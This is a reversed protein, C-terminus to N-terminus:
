MNIGNKPQPPLGYMDVARDSIKNLPIEKRKALNRAMSSNMLDPRQEYMPLLRLFDRYRITTNILGGSSTICIFTPLRGLNRKDMEYQHKFADMIEPHANAISALDSRCEDLIKRFEDATMNYVDIAM